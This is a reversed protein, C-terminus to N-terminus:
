KYRNMFQEEDYLGLASGFSTDRAWGPEKGTLRSLSTDPSFFVNGIRGPTVKDEDKKSTPKWESVAHYVSGSLFFCVDGPRYRHLKILRIYIFNLGPYVSVLTKGAIAACAYLRGYLKWM